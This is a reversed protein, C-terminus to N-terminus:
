FQEYTGDLRGWALVNGKLQNVFVTYGAPSKLTLPEKLAFLQFVYTHPGHGPIPRPGRYGYLGLTGKQLTVELVFALEVTGAPLNEWALEPSLNKGVGYGAHVKPIGGGHTFASSTLVISKSQAKVAQSNCTLRHDGCRVSRLLWGIARLVVAM